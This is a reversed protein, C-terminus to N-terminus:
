TIQLKDTTEDLILIRNKALLARAIYLLQVHKVSLLENVSDAPTSLAGVFDAVIQKMGVCELASWIEEDTHQQFSDLNCRISGNFLIPHSPIVGFSQRLDHLGLTDINIDDIEISGENFAFRQLARVISTRGSNRSGVIGVKEGGDIVFNLDKLVYYGNYTYRLHFNTFVIKGGQPWTKSPRHKNPTRLTAETKINQYEFIREVSTM